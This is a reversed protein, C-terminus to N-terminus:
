NKSPRFSKSQKGIIIREPNTARFLANGFVLTEVYHYLYRDDYKIKRTFGPEVQSMIILPIKSNKNIKLYNNILNNLRDYSVKDFNNTLVDVAIFILDSKLLKNFDFSFSVKKFYKRFTNDLGPEYFNLKKM